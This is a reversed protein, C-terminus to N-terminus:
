STDPPMPEVHTVCGHVDRVVRKPANMLRLSRVLAAILAANSKIVPGSMAVPSSLADGGDSLPIGSLDAQNNSTAGGRNDPM